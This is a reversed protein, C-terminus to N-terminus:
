KLPWMNWHIKHTLQVVTIIYMHVSVPFRRFWLGIANGYKLFGPFPDGLIILTKVTVKPNKNEAINYILSFFHLASILQLFHEFSLFHKKLVHGTSTKTNFSANLWLFFLKISFRFIYHLMSCIKYRWTSTYCLSTVWM